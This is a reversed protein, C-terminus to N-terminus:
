HTPEPAVVTLPKETVLRYRELVNLLEHVRIPKTIFDDMGVAMCREEDEPMAAATLAVIYPRRSHARESRILTTAEIGDMEPMHVDMLVVDFDGARVAAVAEKGNNAIQTQYGMRQLMRVAVKQNILNDEALLIRLPKRHQTEIPADPRREDPAMRTPALSQDFQRLLADYLEAPKVPKNLTAAIGLARSRQRINGKNISALLVIPLTKGTARQRIERVLEFNEM